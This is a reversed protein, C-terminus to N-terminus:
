VYVSHPTFFSCWKIKAIVKGFRKKSFYNGYECMYVGFKSSFLMLIVLRVQLIDKCHRTFHLM